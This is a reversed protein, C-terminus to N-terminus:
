KWDKPTQGEQKKRLFEHVREDAAIELAETATPKRPRLEDDFLWPMRCTFCIALDGPAPLGEGEWNSLAEQLKGCFPCVHDIDYVAM